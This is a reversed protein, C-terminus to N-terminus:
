FAYSFAICIARNQAENSDVIDIINSLGYYYRFDLGIGTELDFGFGAMLGADFNKIEDKIDVNVTSNNEETKYKASLLYSFQPGLQINFDKGPYIKLVLPMKLYNLKIVPDEKSKHKSSEKAGQGTYLLELQFALHKDMTFRKLIGMEISPRSGTEEFNEGNIMGLNLGAKFGFSSQAYSSISIALIIVIFLFKKM